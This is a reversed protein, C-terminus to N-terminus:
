AGSVLLVFSALMAFAGLVLGATAQADRQALGLAIAVAASGLVIPLGTWFVVTTVLGLIGLILALRAAEAPARDRPLLRTFLAALILLLVAGVVILGLLEGEDGTLYAIPMGIALMALAAALIGKDTGSLENM